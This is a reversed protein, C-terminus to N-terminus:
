RPVALRHESRTASSCPTRPDESKFNHLNTTPRTVFAKTASTLGKESRSIHLPMTPRHVVETAATSDKHHEDPESSPGRVFSAPSREHKHTRNLSAVFSMHFSLSGPSKMSLREAVQEPELLHGIGPPLVELEPYEVEDALQSSARRRGLVNSRTGSFSESVPFLKALRARFARGLRGHLSAPQRSLSRTDMSAPKNTIWQLQGGSSVARMAFDKSIVDDVATAHSNRAERTHAPYRAWSKPPMALKRPLKPLGKIIATAQPRLTSGPSDRHVETGLSTAQSSPRLSLRSRDSNEAGSRLSSGRRQEAELRIVRQWLDTASEQLGGHAYFQGHPPHLSSKLDADSSWKQIPFAKQGQNEETQLPCSPVTVGDQPGSNGSSTAKSRGPMTVLIRPIM